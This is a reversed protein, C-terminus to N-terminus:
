DLVSRAAPCVVKGTSLNDTRTAFSCVFIEVFMWYSYSKL